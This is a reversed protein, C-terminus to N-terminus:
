KECVHDELAAVYTGCDPCKQLETTQDTAKKPKNGAIEDSEGNKRFQRAIIFVAGVVIVLLIIKLPSIM